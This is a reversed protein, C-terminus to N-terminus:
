VIKGLMHPQPASSIVTDGFRVFCYTIVGENHPRARKRIGLYHKDDAFARRGPYKSM